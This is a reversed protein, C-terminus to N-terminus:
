NTLLDTMGRLGNDFLDTLIPDVVEHTAGDSVSYWASIRVVSSTEDVADVDFLAIYDSVPAPGSLMSYGFSMSDDSYHILREVYASDDTMVATRYIGDAKQTVECSAVLDQWKTLSCFQGFESWVQAAPTPLVVERTVTPPTMFPDAFGATASAALGLAIVFERKM